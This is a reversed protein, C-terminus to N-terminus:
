NKNILFHFPKLQPHDISKLIKKPKNTIKSRIALEHAKCFAENSEVNGLLQHLCEVQHQLLDESYVDINYLLLLDRNYNKM